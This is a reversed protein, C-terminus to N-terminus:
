TRERRAPVHKDSSEPSMSDCPFVCICVCSGGCSIPMARKADVHLAMEANRNSRTDVALPLWNQNSSRRSPLFLHHSVVQSPVM